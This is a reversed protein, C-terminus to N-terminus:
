FTAMNVSSMEDIIEYVEKLTANPKGMPRRGMEYANKAAHKSSVQGMLSPHNAMVENLLGKAVGKRRQGEPVVLELVSADRAQGPRTLVEMTGGTEPDTYRISEAGEGFIDSYDKKVVDYKVAVPTPTKSGTDALLEDNTKSNISERRYKDVDNSLRNMEVKLSEKDSASGTKFKEKNTNVFDDLKAKAVALNGDGVSMAKGSSIAKSNFVQVDGDLVAGDYGQQVLEDITYRDMEEWGAVKKLNVEKEIIRGKGSAASAASSPDSFSAKDQTFWVTGDASKNFDFDDFSESTQHYVKGSFTQPPKTEKPAIPAPSTAKREIAFIQSSIAASGKKIDRVEGLIQDKRAQSTNPNRYEDQLPKIIDAESAKAIELERKLTPLDGGVEDVGAIAGRQKSGKGLDGVEYQTMGKFAGAKKAIGLGLIDPAATVLGKAMAGLLPSGTADYTIDGAGQTVKEIVNAVPQMFEGVAQAGQQGAETRPTYTLKDQINKVTQTAKDVGYPLMTLGAIGAIPEAFMGSFMAMAPEAVKAFQGGKAM